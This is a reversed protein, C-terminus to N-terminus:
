RSSYEEFINYNKSNVRNEQLYKEENNLRRAERIKRMKIAAYTQSLEAEPKKEGKKPM